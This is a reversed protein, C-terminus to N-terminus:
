LIITFWSSVLSNTECDTRTNESVVSVEEITSLSTEFQMSLPLRGNAALSLLDEAAFVEHNYDQADDESDEEYSGSGLMLDDAELEAGLDVDSHIGETIDCNNPASQAPDHVHFLDIEPEQPHEATNSEIHNSTFKHGITQVKNKKENLSNEGDHSGTFRGSPNEIFTSATNSEYSASNNTATTGRREASLKPIGSAHDVKDISAPMISGTGYSECSGLTKVDGDKENFPEQDAPKRVFGTADREQANNRQRLVRVDGKSQSIESSKPLHQKPRTDTFTVGMVDGEEETRNTSVRNFASFASMRLASNTGEKSKEVDNLTDNEFFWLKSAIKNKEGVTSGVPPEPPTVQKSKNDPEQQYFHRTNLFSEVVNNKVAKKSMIRSAELSENPRSFAGKTPRSRPVSHRSEEESTLSVNSDEDEEFWNNRQKRGKNKGAIIENNHYRPSPPSPPARADKPEMRKEDASQTAYSTVNSAVPEGKEPSAKNLFEPFVEEEHSATDQHSVM